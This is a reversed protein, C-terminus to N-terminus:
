RRHPRLLERTLAVRSDVGLKRYVRKVYQTVTHHSLCLREAIERDALGDVVLTAVEGERPTLMALAELSVSPSEREIALVAVLADDERVLPALHAVVIAREGTALEAALRRTGGGGPAPRALLRHLLGDAEVVDTLLRRATGGLCLETARPDSVVFPTGAVTLAALAQDREREVRERDEIAEITLGVAGSLAEALRIDVSGIDWERTTTAFHVNGGMRDGIRVPVEVVHRVRHVYYARRYVASELWEDASMIEMNYTTRGTAYARELVPDVDKAFREYRAVFNASVNGNAVCTPSGTRPDVLAYGFIPMGLLRGFGVLFRRKLQELNPAASLSRAFRLLEVGEAPDGGPRSTVEGVPV